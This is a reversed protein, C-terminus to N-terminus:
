KIPLCIEFVTGQKLESKVTINGNYKDIIHECIALGLGFGSKSKTKKTTFYPKFIKNLNEQKIGIGTDEIKICIENDKAQFTTIKIKKKNSNKLADISNNLINTLCMSIDGYVGTMVPLDKQLDLELKVYHKFFLNHKLLEIEQKILKNIDLPHLLSTSDDKMKQQLTKLYKSLIKGGNLIKKIDDDNTYKKKLLQSYGIISNLPSNFNHVIGEVRKGIEALKNSKILELELSERARRETVDSTIDTISGVLVTKKNEQISKINLIIFKTKNNIEIKYESVFISDALAEKKLDEDLPIFKLLNSGIVQNQKSELIQLLSKNCLTIKFKNDLWFIGADLNDTIIKYEKLYNSYDILSKNMLNFTKVMDGLVGKYSKSITGLESPHQAIQKMKKSVKDVPSIIKKSFWNGLFSIMILTIAFLILIFLLLSQQAFSNIDRFYSTILIASPKLNIGYNINIGIAWDSNLKGIFKKERNEVLNEVNTKIFSFYSKLHKSLINEKVPYATHINYPVATMSKLDPQTIYIITINKNDISNINGAAALFIKKGYNEIFCIPKNSSDAKFFNQYRRSLEWIEGYYLKDNLYITLNNFISRYNEKLYNQFTPSSQEKILKLLNKDQLIKQITEISQNKLDDIKKQYDIIAKNINNNEYKKIGYSALQWEVLILSTVLIFTIIFFLVYIRQELAANKFM